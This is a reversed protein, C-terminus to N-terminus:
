VMSDSRQGNGETFNKGSSLLFEILLIKPIMYRKGVRISAVTGNRLLEYVKSRGIRLIRMLDDATLVDPHGELPDRM